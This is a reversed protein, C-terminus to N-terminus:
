ILVQDGETGEQYHARRRPHRFRLRKPSLVPAGHLRRRGLTPSRASGRRGARPTPSAKVPPSVHAPISTAAGPRGGPLEPTSAVPKLVMAGPCRATRRRFPGAGLNRGRGKGRNRARTRARPASQNRPSSSTWTREEAQGQAGHSRSPDSTESFRSLM